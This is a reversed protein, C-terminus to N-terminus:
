TAKQYDRLFALRAKTLASQTGTKLKHRVLKADKSM